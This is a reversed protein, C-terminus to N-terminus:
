MHISGSRDDNFQFGMPSNFIQKPEDFLSSVSRIVSIRNELVSNTLEIEQRPKLTIFTKKQGDELIEKIKEKVFASQQSKLTNVMQLNKDEQVEPKRSKGLRKQKTKTELKNKM